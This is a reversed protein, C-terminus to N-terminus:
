ELKAKLMYLWAEKYMINRIPATHSNIAPKSATLTHTNKYPFNEKDVDVLPGTKNMGLTKFIELQEEFTCGVADNSHVFAFYRNIPTKSKAFIWNAPKNYTNGYDKPAGFMIVRAVKYKSAIYGAHGGGQSQGGVAIKDWRITNNKFFQQWNENPYKQHLYQLLKILRNEISNPRTIDLGEVMDRGSLIEERAKDFCAEDPSNKCITVMAISDPYILNIVHYGAQAATINFEPATGGPGYTGALFLFLQNRRQASDSLYIHHSMRNTTFTNIAPDTLNPAIIRPQMQGNTCATTLVFLFAIFRKCPYM